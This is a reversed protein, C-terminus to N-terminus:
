KPRERVIRVMALMREAYTDIGAKAWAAGNGHFYLMSYPFTVMGLHNTAMAIGSIANMSGDEHKSGSAVFGAVKWELSWKKETVLLRDIFNKMLGSMNFWYTPTGFIIGDAREVDNLVRKMDKRLQPEQSGDCPDLKERVLHILSGTAGLRRADGLIRQLRGATQGDTRSSGNIACVRFGKYSM